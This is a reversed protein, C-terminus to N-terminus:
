WLNFWNTGIKVVDNADLAHMWSLVSSLSLTWQILVFLAALKISIYMYGWGKALFLLICDPHVLYGSSTVKGQELVNVVAITGEVSIM